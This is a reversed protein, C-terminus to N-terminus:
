KNQKNLRKKNKNKWRLNYSTKKTQNNNVKKTKKTIIEKEEQRIGRKQPHGLGAESRLSVKPAANLWGTSFHLYTFSLHLVHLLLVTCYLAENNELQKTCPRQRRAFSPHTCRRHDIVNTSAWPPCGDKDGMTTALPPMTDESIPLVVALSLSYFLFVAPM